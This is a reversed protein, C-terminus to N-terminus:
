HRDHHRAPDAPATRHVRTSSPRARPRVGGAGQRRRMLRPSTRPPPPTRPPVHDIAASRVRSDSCPRVAASKSVTTPVLAPARRPVSAREPTAMSSSMAWVRPSCTRVPGSTPNDQSGSTAVPPGRGPRGRGRGPDNRSTPAPRRWRPEIGGVANNDPRSGAPDRDRSRMPSSTSATTGWPVHGSDVHTQAMSKSAPRRTANPRGPAGDAGIASATM